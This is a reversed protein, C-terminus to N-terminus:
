DSQSYDDDDSSSDDDDSWKYVTSANSEDSVVEMEDSEDDDEDSDLDQQADDDESGNGFGGGAPGNTISGDGSNGGYFDSFGYEDDFIRLHEMMDTSAQGVVETPLEKVVWHVVQLFVEGYSNHNLLLQLDAEAQLRDRLLFGYTEFLSPGYAENLLEIGRGLSARDQMNKVMDAKGCLDEMYRQTWMGNTKARDAITFLVAGMEPTLDQLYMAFDAMGQRVLNDDRNFRLYHSRCMNQWVVVLPSKHLAYIVLYMKVAGGTLIDVSASMIRNTSQSRQRARPCERGCVSLM